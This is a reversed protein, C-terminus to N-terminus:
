FSPTDRAGHHVHLVIVEADVVRYLIRYGRYNRRRVGPYRVADLLPFREWGNTLDEALDMLERVFSIARVRDDRAIRRRISDLDEQASRAYVLKM